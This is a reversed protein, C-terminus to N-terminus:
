RATVEVGPALRLRLRDGVLITALATLAITLCPFIALWPAFQIFQQSDQVLLGWAPEPRAVGIGLYALSAALLIGYSVRLSFDVIVVPWLNPLLERFLIYGAGEGRSRAAEIYDRQALDMAVSRILRASRPWFVLGIALVLCLTSGGLMTVVLMALILAPFSMVADLLRMVVEDVVGRRYGCVLGTLTGLVTGFGASALALLLTPRAGWLIRSFLDRGFEDTGFLYRGGPPQLIDQPHFDTASYPALWPLALPDIVVVTIFALALMDGRTLRRRM